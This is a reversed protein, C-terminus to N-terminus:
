IHYPNGWFAFSRTEGNPYTKEMTFNPPHGGAEVTEYDYKQLLEEFEDGKSYSVGTWDAGLDEVFVTSNKGDDEEDVNVYISDPDGSQEEIQSRLAEAERNPMIGSRAGIGVEDSDGYEVEEVKWGGEIKPLTAVLKTGRDTDGGHTEVYTDWNKTPYVQWNMVEHVEVHAVQSKNDPGLKEVEAQNENEPPGEGFTLITGEEYRVDFNEARLKAIIEAVEMEIKDQHPQLKPRRVDSGTIPRIKGDKTYFGRPRM